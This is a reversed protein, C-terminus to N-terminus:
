ERELPVSGPNRQELDQWYEVLPVQRDFGVSEYARRAATHPPDLGTDVHAYHLGVDRFHQLVHQYMYKGWGKGAHDPHIGNNDIHGYGQRLFLYFSVFGIVLGAEELVWLWDPHEQFLQRNQATKREQWTLDPNNRVRQYCENGLMAEYSEQIAAYCLITIEDVRTLDAHRALRLVGGNRSAVVGNESIM